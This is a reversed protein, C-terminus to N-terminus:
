VKAAGTSFSLFRETNLTWRDILEPSWKLTGAWSLGFRDADVPKASLELSLGYKTAPPLMDKNGILVFPREELADFKAKADLGLIMGRESRHLVDVIGHQSLAEIVANLGKARLEEPKIEKDLLAKFPKILEMKDKPQFRLLALHMTLNRPAADAAHGAISVFLAALLALAVKM